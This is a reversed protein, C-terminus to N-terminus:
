VWRPALRTLCTGVPAPDLTLGKGLIGRGAWAALPDGLPAGFSRRAEESPRPKLFPQTAVDAVRTMESPWRGPGPVGSDGDSTGKM